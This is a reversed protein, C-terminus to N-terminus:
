TNSQERGDDGSTDGRTSLLPRRWTDASLGRSRTSGHADLPAPHAASAPSGAPPMSPRRRSPPATAACDKFPSPPLPEIISSRPSSPSSTAINASQAATSGSPTANPALHSLACRRRRHLRPRTATNSGNRHHTLRDAHVGSCHYRSIGARPHHTRSSPVTCHSSCIRAPATPNCLSTSFLCYSSYAQTYNSLSFAHPMDLRVWANVKAGPRSQESRYTHRARLM